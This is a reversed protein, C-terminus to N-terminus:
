QYLQHVLFAQLVIINLLIKWFRFIFPILFNHNKVVLNM